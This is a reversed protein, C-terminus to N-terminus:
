QKPISLTLEGETMKDNQFVGKYSDGNNRTLTGAGHMLDKEWRGIYSKRNSPDQKPRTLTGTGYRQNEKWAGTYVKGDTREYTGDRGSKKGEKSFGKYIDKNKYTYTGKGHPQSAAVKGEYRDGSPRTIIGEGTM